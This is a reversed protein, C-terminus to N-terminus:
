NKPVTVAANVATMIGKMSFSGDKAKSSFIGNLVLKANTKALQEMYASSTTRMKVINEKQEIEQQLKAKDADAASALKTKLAAIEDQLGKTKAQEETAKAGLGQQYEKTLFSISIDQTDITDSSKSQDNITLKGNVYTVPVAEPKSSSDKDTLGEINMTMTGKGDAGIQLDIVVPLPADKLAALIAFACAEGAQEESTAGKTQQPVNVETFVMVGTYRGSIETATPYKADKTTALEDWTPVKPPAVPQSSTSTSTAGTDGTKKKCGAVSMTGLLLLVACFLVMWKRFSGIKM